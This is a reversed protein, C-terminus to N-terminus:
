PAGRRLAATYNAPEAEFSLKAFGAASNGLVLAAFGAAAEAAQPTTAVGQARIFAAASEAPVPQTM